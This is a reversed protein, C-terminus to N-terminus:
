YYWNRLQQEMQTWEKKSGRYWLTGINYYARGSLVDGIRGAHVEAITGMWRPAHRYQTGALMGTGQARAKAGAALVRRVGKPDVAIPKEMFVHKGAAVCAEVHIPRFGPPTANLVLDVDCEILRKYADFGTFCKDDLVAHGKSALYKRSGDLRDPFMDAMAVLKVGPAASLCDHAAGTGRGGCGILGIRIPAPDQALAPIAM